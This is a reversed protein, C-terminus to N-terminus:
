EWPDVGLKELALAVVQRARERTVGLRGGIVELTEPPYGTLGFRWDLVSRERPTLRDFGGARRLTAMISCAKANPIKPKRKTENMIDGGEPPLM